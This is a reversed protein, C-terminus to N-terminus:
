DQHPLSGFSALTEWIRSQHIKDLAKEWDLFLILGDGDGRELFVVIHRLRFFPDSTSDLGESLRNRLIIVYLKYMTNRLSIPRYNELNHPDGKKFISILKAHTLEPQVEKTSWWRQFTLRLAPYSHEPPALCTEATTGDPGPGKHRKLRHIAKM